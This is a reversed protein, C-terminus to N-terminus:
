DEECLAEAADLLKKDLEELKGKFGSQMRLWTDETAMSAEQALARAEVIKDSLQMFTPDFDTDSVKGDVEYQLKMLDLRVEAADIQHKQIVGTLGQLWDEIADLRKDQEKDNSFISM